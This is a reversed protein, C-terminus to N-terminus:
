NPKAQMTRTRIYCTATNCKSFTTFGASKKMRMGHRPLRVVSPAKPVYAYVKILAYEVHLKETNESISQM